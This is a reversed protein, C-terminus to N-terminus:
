IRHNSQLKNYEFCTVSRMFFTHTTCIKLIREILVLFHALESSKSRCIVFFLYINKFKLHLIEKIPPFETGLSTSKYVYNYYDGDKQFNCGNKM